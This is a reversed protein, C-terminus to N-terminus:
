RGRSGTDPARIGPRHRERPFKRTRSARTLDRHHRPTGDVRGRACRLAHLLVDDNLDLVNTPTAAGGLAFSPRRRPLLADGTDMPGPSELLQASQSTIFPSAHLTEAAAADSAAQSARRLSGDGHGDNSVATLSSSPTQTDGKSHEMRRRKLPTSVLPAGSHAEAGDDRARVRDHAM